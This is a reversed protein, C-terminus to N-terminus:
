GERQSGATGRQDDILKSLLSQRQEAVIESLLAHAHVLAEGDGAKPPMGMVVRALASCAARAKDYDSPLAAAEGAERATNTPHTM